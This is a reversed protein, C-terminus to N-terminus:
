PWGMSADNNKETFHRDLTVHLHRGPVDRKEDCASVVVKLRSGPKETSFSLREEATQSLVAALTGAQVPEHFM